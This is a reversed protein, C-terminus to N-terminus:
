AAFYNYIMISIAICEAFTGLTILVSLTPEKCNDSEYMFVPFLAIPIAVLILAVVACGIALLISKM